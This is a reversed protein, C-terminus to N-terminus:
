LMGLYQELLAPVRTQVAKTLSERRQVKSKETASSSGRGGTPEPVLAGWVNKEFVAGLRRHTLTVSVVEALDVPVWEGREYGPAFVLDDKTSATLGAAQVGGRSLGSASRRLQFSSGAPIGKKISSIKLVADCDACATTHVEYRRSKLVSDVARAIEAGSGSPDEQELMIKKTPMEKLAALKEELSAKIETSFQSQPHNKLFEEYPQIQDKGKVEDYLLKDIASRARQAYEGDPHEKLFQEYAERTNQSEATEWRSQVSACGSAALLVSIFLILQGFIRRM